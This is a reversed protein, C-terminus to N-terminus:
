DIKVVKRHSSSSKGDLRVHYVGSKLFSLNVHMIENGNIAQQHELVGTSSYISLSNYGMNGENEM